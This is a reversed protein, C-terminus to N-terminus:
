VPLSTTVPAVSSFSMDVRWANAVMTVPVRGLGPTRIHITDMQLGAKGYVKSVCHSQSTGLTCDTNTVDCQVHPWSVRRSSPNPGTSSNTTSAYASHPDPPRMRYTAARRQDEVIYNLFKVIQEPQGNFKARLVVRTRLDNLALTQHTEALGFDWAPGAYEMGTRSSAGTGRELGSILIPDAKAEAADSTVICVGVDSALKVSVRAWPYLRKLQAHAAQCRGEGPKAGQAMQVQLEDAGALYNSTVGFHGSAVRKIAFRVADGNFLTRLREGDEGGEGTSLKGGLRDIAFALTSHAEMSIWGYPTAGTVFRRVIENWPEVEEIPVPTENKGHKRKERVAEEFTDMALLDFTAGRVRSATGFFCKEIVETPPGLAEFIQARKYSIGPPVIKHFAPWTLNAAKLNKLAKMVEIALVPSPWLVRHCPQPDMQLINGNLGVYCELSM